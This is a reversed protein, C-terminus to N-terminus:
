PITKPADFMLDDIAYDRDIESPSIKLYAIPIESKLGLFDAGDKDVSVRSISNGAADFAEMSIGDRKVHAIWFGVVTVTAPVREDGPKCFRITMEGQFHPDYNAACRSETEGPKASRAERVNYTFVAVYSGERPACLVVGYPVFAKSINDKQELAKGKVDHAFDIKVTGRLEMESESELVSFRAPKDTEQAPLRGLMSSAAIVWFIAIPSQSYANRM